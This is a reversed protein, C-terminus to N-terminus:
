DPKASGGETKDDHGPTVDISKDKALLAQSLKAALKDMNAIAHINTSATIQTPEGADLREHTRLLGYIGAAQYASANEIKKEVQVLAKAAVVRSAAELAEKQKLRSRQVRTIGQDRGM